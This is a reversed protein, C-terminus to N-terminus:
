RNEAAQTTEAPEKYPMLNKAYRAYQTEPYNKQLKFFYKEANAKDGSNYYCLGLWYYVDVYDKRLRLCEKFYEEAEVYRYKKYLKLGEDHLYVLVQNEMRENVMNYVNKYVEDKAAKEYNIATFAKCAELYDEQVFYSLANILETYSSLIGDTGQYKNLQDTAEKLEAELGEISSELSLIEVERDSLNDGYSMLQRNNEEIMRQRESPFILFSCALVGLLIGGIICFFDHLLENRQNYRPVIAYQRGKEEQEIQKKVDKQLNKGGLQRIEDMYKITQPDSASSQMLPTLARYGKAYDKNQICLLAMLKVADRYQPYKEVVSKIHLMALDCSDEQACHLALNYKNVAQQCHAYLDIDGANKLYWDGVINRIQETDVTDANVDAGPQFSKLEEVFDIM